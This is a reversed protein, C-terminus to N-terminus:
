FFMDSSSHALNVPIAISSFLDRMWRGWHRNKVIMVNGKNSLYVIHCTMFTKSCSKVWKLSKLGKGPSQLMWLPCFCLDYKLILPYGNEVFFFLSPHNELHFSHICPITSRQNLNMTSSHYKSYIHIRRGGMLSASWHYVFMNEQQIMWILDLVIRITSFYLNTQLSQLDANPTLRWM